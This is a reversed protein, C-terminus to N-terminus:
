SGRTLTRGGRWDDSYAKSMEKFIRVIEKENWLTEDYNFVFESCAVSKMEKLIQYASDSLPLERLEPEAVKIIALQQYTHNLQILKRDFDIDTWKFGVLNCTHLGTELMLCAAFRMQYEASEPSGKVVKEMLLQALTKDKQSQGVFDCPNYRLLNAVLASQMVQNLLGFAKDAAAQGDREALERLLEQIKEHGIMGVPLAGLKPSLYKKSRHRYTIISRRSLRQSENELFLAFWEDYTYTRMAPSPQNPLTAAGNIKRQFEEELEEKLRRVKAEVEERTEGYVSRYKYSGDKRRAIACRGEWLGDRRLYINDGKRTM